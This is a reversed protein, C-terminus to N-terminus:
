PSPGSKRRPEYLRVGQVRGKVPHLGRDIFDFADPCQQMTDESVLIPAVGVTLGEIRSALNVTDGIATYERRQESGILGVVAPGTHLGIGVDFNKGIEGMKKRLVQVRDYMDLAANIAHEAQKVDDLPAGWFAMLADGIFKDLSGGHKFVIDVQSTFYDNLMKVLEEPPRTESLTSFGRIDSFLLTIQRREGGRALGDSAILEQVVHPNVFRSFMRVAHEKDERERLLDFFMVGFYFQTFFVLPTLVPLMYRRTLMAYSLLLFFVVVAVLLLGNKIVNRYSKFTYHFGILLLVTILAMLAPPAATVTRQNKFNEIATALLMAGPYAVDLPTPRIDYLGEATAGIIVIKNRLENPDRWKNKNKFDKYLDGYSIRTFSNRSGHWSLLVSEGSPLPYGLDQVVRAPLSPIQWGDLPYNVYYRRGIGDVDQIFNILGIRWSAPDIAKPLLLSAKALPNATDPIAKSNRGYMAPAIEALLTGEADDKPELRLMPLYVRPTTALVQNFAADSKPRFKDPEAFWIDFVIAKPEQQRIGELLEGHISRPWPWSGAIENMGALTKEDIDVIVIDPDSQGQSAHIKVFFDSLKNELAQLSHLAFFELVVLVM